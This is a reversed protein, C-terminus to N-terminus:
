CIIVNTDTINYPKHTHVRLYDVHKLSHIIERVYTCGYLLKRIAGAHMYVKYMALALYKIYFMLIDIFPAVFVHM